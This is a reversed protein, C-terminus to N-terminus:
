SILERLQQLTMKDVLEHAQRRLQISEKEYAMNKTYDEKSLWLRYSRGDPMCYKVLHTKQEVKFRASFPIEEGERWIYASTKNAELVIMKQPEGEFKVNCGHRSVTEMWVTQGVELAQKKAMRNMGEKSRM